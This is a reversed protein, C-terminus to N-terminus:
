VPETVNAFFLKLLEAELAVIGPKVVAYITADVYGARLCAINVYSFTIRGNNAYDVALAMQKASPPTVAVAYTHAIENMATIIKTSLALDDSYAM